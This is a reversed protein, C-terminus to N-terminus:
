FVSECIYDFVFHLICICGMDRVVWFVHDMPGLDLERQGQVMEKWSQSFDMLDNAAYLIISMDNVYENEHGKVNYCRVM